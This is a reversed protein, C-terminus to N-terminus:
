AGQRRLTLLAAGFGVFIASVGRALWLAFRPRALLARARAALLAYALLSTFSLAMFLGTLLLFQPLLPARTDLFQPFLATFFLIPKPNTGATLLAEGFLRWPPPRPLGSEGDSPALTIGRGALQRLGIWFLYGAGLLKVIGFLLASSQLAVGLGLIAAASLGFLGCVNGLTSWIATRPGWAMSNRLALLTAPGPSLIAVAAVATFAVLTHAHM